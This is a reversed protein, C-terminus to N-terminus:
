VVDLNWLRELSARASAIPWASATSLPASASHLANFSSNFGAAHEGDGALVERDVPRILDGTSEVDRGDLGEEAVCAPLKFRHADAGDDADFRGQADGGGRLAADTAM